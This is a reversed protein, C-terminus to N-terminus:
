KSPPPSVKFGLRLLDETSLGLQTAALAKIDEQTEPSGGRSLFRSDKPRGYQPGYETVYRDYTMTITVKLIDAPGYSVPVSILSKPFANILQFAKFIYPKGNNYYDVDREFKIIRLYSTKYNNPFNFRRFYGKEERDAAVQSTGSIYDMWGEFLNLIFYKRDVYFTFDIDNYLRTHAFEQTVGVFNDKVESTAFTSGPLSIDSCLFGLNAYNSRTIGYKENTLFEELSSPLVIEIAYQNSLALDGLLKLEAGSPPKLSFLPATM